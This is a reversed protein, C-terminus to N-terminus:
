KRCANWRQQDFEFREVPPQPSGARKLQARLNKVKRMLDDYEAQTVKRRTEINELGTMRRQGERAWSLMYDFPDVTFGCHLCKLMRREHDLEVQKHQGPCERDREVKKLRLELDAAAEANIAIINSVPEPTLSDM